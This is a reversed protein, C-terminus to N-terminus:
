RRASVLAVLEALSTGSGDPVVGLEEMAAKARNVWFTPYGFLRAGAADWGAFAPWSLGQIFFHESRALRPPRDQASPV